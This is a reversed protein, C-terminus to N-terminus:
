SSIKGPFCSTEATITACHCNNNPNSDVYQAGTGKKVCACLHTYLNCDTEPLTLGNATYTKTNLTTVTNDLLGVKLDQTTSAVFPTSKAATPTTGLDGKAFYVDVAYNNGPSSAKIANGTAGAAVDNKIDLTFTLATTAAIGKM